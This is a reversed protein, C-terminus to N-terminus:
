NKAPWGTALPKSMDATIQLDACHHYTFDGEANLGHAAMFQIVQMTCKACNINPIDIEAEWPAIRQGRAPPNDAHMFLGDALIPPRTPYSIMGAVSQAGRAGQATVAEPDKPLEARSNVALAVRYFGPHYVTEQIKLHLKSGGKVMGIKNSPTGTTKDSTGCPAAKQPDGLDAEVLWSEPEILKFHAVALHAFPLTLLLAGLCRAVLKM